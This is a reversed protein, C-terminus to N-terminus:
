GGESNNKTRPLFLTFITGQGITSDVLIAGGSQKMIGYVTSLGLGTGKGQERTTFFPEFVRELTAKDMGSGTDEVVLQFFPGELDFPASTRDLEVAKVAIRFTGGDPMAQAANVALNMVVQEIQTRDATIMCSESPLEMRLQIDPGLLRSLMGTTDKLLAILDLKELRFIQKRSFALLQGTLQSGRRAAKEIEEIDAQFRGGQPATKRALEAYSLIVALLNNFDHAVGAALRGVSEMKQAHLLQEQLRATEREATKRAALEAELQRIKQELKRMLANRHQEIIVTESGSPIKGSPRGAADALVQNIIPLLVEMPQPKLIFRDAGLSDALREDDKETYTATYFIFPINKLEEHNKWLRCLEFGDMVPMLIDTVILDPKNELAMNLATQGDGASRTEFGHAQFITELLIRNEQYDDAILISTM